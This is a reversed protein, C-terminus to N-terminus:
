KKAEQAPAAAAAGGALEENAPVALLDAETWPEARAAFEKRATAIQEPSIEGATNGWEQRIYTLTAAIKKDSLIKEWAPMAGNYSVGSVKVPGQLGKLLIMALRKSGGIAYESKVLPPFAGPVGMGSAQHCAVCNVTYIKKGQAAPSEAAAEAGAGAAAGTSGATEPFLLKPSTEREDFVDGRFGGNFMGLYTGACIIALGSLAMLWLPVPVQGFGPEKHERQVAAHVETIDRTEHYDIHDVSSHQSATKFDEPNSM